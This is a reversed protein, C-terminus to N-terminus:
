SSASEVHLVASRNDPWLSPFHISAYSTSKNAGTSSLSRPSTAYHLGNIFFCHKSSVWITKPPPYFRVPQLHLSFSTELVDSDHKNVPINPPANNMTPVQVVIPSPRSQHPRMFADLTLMTPPTPQNGASPRNDRDNIPHRGIPAGRPM